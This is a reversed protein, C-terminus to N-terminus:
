VVSSNSITEFGFFRGVVALYIYALSMGEKWVTLAMPFEHFGFNFLYGFIYLTPKFFPCEKLNYLNSVKHKNQNM